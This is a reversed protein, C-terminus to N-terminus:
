PNPRAGNYMVETGQVDLYYAAALIEAEQLGPLRFTKGAFTGRTATAGIVANRATQVPDGPVAFSIGASQAAICLSAMEQANRRNRTQEIAERHNALSNMAIGAMVGLVAIVILIEVLSFGSCSARPPRISRRSSCIM